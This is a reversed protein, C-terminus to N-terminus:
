PYSFTWELFGCCDKPGFLMKRFQLLFRLEYFISTLTM